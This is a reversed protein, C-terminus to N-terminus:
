REWIRLPKAYLSSLLSGYGMRNNVDADDIMQVDLIHALQRPGVTESYQQALVRDLGAILSALAPTKRATWVLLHLPTAVPEGDPVVDDPTADYDYMLVSKIHEDLNGMAEAVQQALSYYCYSRATGNGQRLADIAKERRSLGMKQATYAVAKDVADELASAADPLHLAPPALRSDSTDSHDRVHSRSM